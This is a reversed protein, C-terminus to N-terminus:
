KALPATGGSIIYINNNNNKSFKLVLDRHCRQNGVSNPTLTLSQPTSNSIHFGYLTFIIKMEMEDEFTM